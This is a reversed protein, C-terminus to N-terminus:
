KKLMIVFSMCVIIAGFIAMGVGVIFSNTGRLINDLFIFAIGFLFLIVGFLLALTSYDSDPKYAM